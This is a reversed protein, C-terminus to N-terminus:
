EGLEGRTRIYDGRKYKDWGSKKVPKREYFQWGLDYITKMNWLHHIESTKKNLVHPEGNRDERVVIEWTDGYKDYPFMKRYSDIRRKRLVEEFFYSSGFYATIIAAFGIVVKNFSDFLINAKELPLYLNLVVFIILAIIAILYFKFM